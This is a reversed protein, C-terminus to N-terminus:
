EWVIYNGSDVMIQRVYAEIVVHDREQATTKPSFPRLVPIQMDPDTWDQVFVPEKMGSLVVQIDAKLDDTFHNPLDWLSIEPEFAQLDAAYRTKHSQVTENFARQVAIRGDLHTCTRVLPGLDKPCVVAHVTTVKENEGPAAVALM